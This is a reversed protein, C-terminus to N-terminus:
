NLAGESQQDALLKRQHTFIANLLEQAREDSLVTPREHYDNLNFPAFVDGWGLDETADKSQWFYAVWTDDALRTVKAHFTDLPEAVEGDVCAIHDGLSLSVGIEPELTVGLHYNLYTDLQRYPMKMPDIDLITMIAVADGVLRKVPITQGITELREELEVFTKITHQLVEIFPHAM